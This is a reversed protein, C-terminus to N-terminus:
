EGLNWMAHHVVYRPCNSDQSAFCVSEVIIRDAMM